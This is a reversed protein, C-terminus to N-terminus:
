GAKKWVHRGPQWATDCPSGVSEESSLSCSIGRFCLIRDDFCNGLNTNGHPSDMCHEEFPTKQALLNEAGTFGFGPRSLNWALSSGLAVHPPPGARPDWLWVMALSPNFYSTESPILITVTKLIFLNGLLLDSKVNPMMFTHKQPCIIKLCSVYVRTKTQLIRPRGRLYKSTVTQTWM